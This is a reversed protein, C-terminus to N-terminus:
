KRSKEEKPYRKLMKSRRQLQNLRDEIRDLAYDIGWADKASKLLKLSDRIFLYNRYIWQHSHVCANWLNTIRKGLHTIRNVMKRRDNEELERLREDVIWSIFDGERVQLWAWLFGRITLSKKFRWAGVKVAAAFAVGATVMFVRFELAVSEPLLIALLQLIVFSAGSLWALNRYRSLREVILTASMLERYSQEFLSYNDRVSDLEDAVIKRTKRSSNLPTVVSRITHWVLVITIILTLILFTVFLPDAIRFM